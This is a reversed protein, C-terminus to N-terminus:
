TDRYGLNAAVLGAPERPMDLALLLTRLLSREKIEASTFGNPVGAGELGEIDPPLWPYGVHIGHAKVTPDTRFAPLLTIEITPRPAQGARPAAAFHPLVSNEFIAWVGKGGTISMAGKDQLVLTTSGQEPGAGSPYIMIKKLSLPWADTHLGGDKGPKHSFLRVAGAAWYHGLVAEIKPAQTALAENLVAEFAPSAERHTMMKDRYAPTSIPSEFPDFSYGEPREDRWPVEKCALYAAELREADAPILGNVVCRLANLHPTGAKPNQARYHKIAAAAYLDWAYFSLARRARYWQVAAPDGVLRSVYGDPLPAPERELQGALRAADGAANLIDKLKDM